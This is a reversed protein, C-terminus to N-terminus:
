QPRLAAYGPVSDRRSLLEADHLGHPQLQWYRRSPCLQQVAMSLRLVRM